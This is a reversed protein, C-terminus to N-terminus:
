MIINILQYSVHIFEFHKASSTVVSTLYIIDSFYRVHSMSNMLRKHTESEIEPLQFDNNNIIDGQRHYGIKVKRESVNDEGVSDECPGVIFWYDGGLLTYIFFIRNLLKEHVIFIFLIPNM